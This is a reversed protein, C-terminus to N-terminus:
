YSMLPNNTDRGAAFALCTHIEEETLVPFEERLEEHSMGEALYELVHTVTMRTNRVCPKGSRRDPQISILYSYHLHEM